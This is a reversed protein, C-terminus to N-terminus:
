VDVEVLRTFLPNDLLCPLTTVRLIEAKLTDLQGATMDYVKYFQQYTDISPKHGQAVHFKHADPAASAKEGKLLELCHSIYTSLVPVHKCDQVMGLLVGKFWTSPKDQRSVSFGIKALTRGVKPGWVRGDSSHWFRGSCFEVLDADRLAKTQAVFGLRALLAIFEDAAVAQKLAVVSDDGLVIVRYDTIGLQELAWVLAGANLMSNGPSTNPDGSCRTGPVAYRHGHSTRGRVYLQQTLVLKAWKGVGMRDYVAQEVTLAEVSISADYRSYDTELFHTFGQNEVSTMWQGLDEANMGSAYTVCNNMNWTRALHKGFAFMWPGLLVNALDGVGQIVRPDFDEVGVPSSKLLKERKIFTKRVCEAKVKGVDPCTEFEDLAKKQAKQRAVPFRSNWIDFKSSRVIVSPLIRELVLSV